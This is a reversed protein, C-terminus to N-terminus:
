CKYYNMPAYQAGNQFYFLADVYHYKIFVTVATQVSFIQHLHYVGVGQMVPRLHCRPPDSGTVEQYWPPIKMNVGISQHTEPAADLSATSRHIDVYLAGPPQSVQQPHPGSQLYAAEGRGLTRYERGNWPTHHTPVAKSTLETVEVRHGPNKASKMSHQLQPSSQLYATIDRGSKRHTTYCPGGQYQGSNNEIMM